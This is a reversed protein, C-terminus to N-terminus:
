SWATLDEVTDVDAPDGECAVRGVLDPRERMVARAGEDGSTPLMPWVSRHLRVPHGPADGYVATAIPMDSAAVARWADATVGPQDGLGVVVADHGRAGAADLACQLSTAQGDRWRDNHVASDLGLDVAGTVVILDDLAAETAAAVAWDVVRKGRVVALLKHGEGQWRTGGGAALVVTATTM